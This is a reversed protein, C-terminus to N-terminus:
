DELSFLLDRMKPLHWFEASVLEEARDCLGRIRKAAQVPKDQMAAAHGYLNGDNFNIAGLAEVLEDQAPLLKALTEEISSLRKGLEKKAAPSSTLHLAQGTQTIQKEIAPIVFESVMSLQTTFEVNRSRLFRELLINAYSKIEDESLVELNRLLEIAASSTFEKYAELINSVEPLNRSKAEVKWEPAYNNGSFLIQKNEDYLNKILRIIAKDRGKEEQLIVRLQQTASQMAHAVATNLIAIPISINMSSGVSRFEFKNGTFAIPSTRNRDSHDRPIHGIHGIGLNIDPTESGEAVKGSAIAALAAELAPGLYISLVTPPAEHGGLRHENGPSFVSAALVGGHDNVAKLIVGVLALFRLNQHPTKGAEFLNQDKDNCLSWNCHKGSGNVSDFPKENLLCLLGHRKAIKKMMEMTLADHDAAISAREHIPAMEFQGPAVENHRTKMPVGLKYLERQLDDMYALVRSPISGFYHDNIAQGQAVPAGLLTKGTLMLDPRYSAIDGNLLFYEQEAGITPFVTKIDVDGLLKLFQCSENKLAQMSRLLPTKHDLAQGHYGFFVTPICLSKTTEDELIFLPSTCDWATYGRAEFTSRMGGSPLSSAGPEGQLLQSGTFRELVKQESHLSYQVAIFADHKEATQGSLPQFWHCFHTAGKGVAWEKVVNAIADATEESFKRGLEIARLLDQFANKPLRDRMKGLDFVSEGFYESILQNTPCSIKSRWTAEIAPRNAQAPNVSKQWYKM